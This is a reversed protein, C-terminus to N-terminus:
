YAETLPEPHPSAEHWLPWLPHSEFGFSRSSTILCGLMLCVARDLGGLRDSDGAAVRDEGRKVRCRWTGGKPGSSGCRQM